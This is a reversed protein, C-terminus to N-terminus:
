YEKMAKYQKANFFKSLPSMKQNREKLLFTNIKDFDKPNFDVNKRKQTMWTENQKLVKYVAKIRDKISAPIQQKEMFKNLFWQLSFILEPFSIDYSYCEFYHIITLSIENIIYNHLRETNFDNDSIKIKFDFYGKKTYNQNTNIIDTKQQNIKKMFAPNDIINILYPTLPVYVNRDYIRTEKSAKVVLVIVNLIKLRMLEYIRSRSIHLVTLCIQIFPYCLLHLDSNNKNIHSCLIKGWLKIINLFRWNYISNITISKNTKLKQSHIKKNKINKTPAKEMISISQKVHFAISRIRNFVDQYSIVPNILYMENLSNIMFTIGPMTTLSVKKCMQVYSTYMLKLLLLLQKNHMRKGIEHLAVFANIRVNKTGSSWLKIIIKIYSKLIKSIQNMMFSPNKRIDRSENNNNGYKKLPLTTAMLISVLNTIHKLFLIQMSEDTISNFFINLHKFYYKFSSRLALLTKNTTFIKLDNSERDEPKVGIIDMMQTDLKTLCYVLLEEYAPNNAMSFVTKSALKKKSSKTNSVDDVCLEVFTCFGNIIRKLANASKTAELEQVLIKMQKVTVNVISASIQQEIDEQDSMNIDSAGDDFEFDDDADNDNDEDMDNDNVFENAEYDKIMDDIGEPEDIKVDIDSDEDDNIFESRMKTTSLKNLAADVDNMKDLRVEGSMLLGPDVEKLHKYFEPDQERYEFFISVCIYCCEM